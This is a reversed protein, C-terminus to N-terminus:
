SLGEDVKLSSDSYTSENAAIIMGGDVPLSVGNVYSALNSALFVVVSAVEEPRGIRRLPVTAARARKRKEVEPGEGWIRTDIPGPVVANVRIGHPGYEKALQRTLGLIGAKAAAYAPHNAFGTYAHVSSTNVICGSGREVMSPLAYKATLFISRLSVNLAKDWDAVTMDVVNTRPYWAANNHIVDIRGFRELVQEILRRVEDPEAIDAPHATAVGGVAEIEAVSQAAGGTDIDVVVVRAGLSSFARASAKGIGNGAGTVLAVKGAFEIM